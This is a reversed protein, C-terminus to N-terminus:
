ELRNALKKRQLIILRTINKRILNPSSMTDTEDTQFLKKLCVEKM